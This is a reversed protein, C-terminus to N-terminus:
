RRRRRTALGTLTLLSLTATAPEPTTPSAPGKAVLKFQSYMVGGINSNYPMQTAVIGIQGDNISNESFVITPLVELSGLTLNAVDGGLIISLYYPAPFRMYDGYSGIQMIVQSFVSGEDQVASLVTEAAADNLTITLSTDSDFRIKANSFSYLSTGNSGFVFTQNGGNTSSINSTYSSNDDVLVTSNNRLTINHLEYSALSNKWASVSTNASPTYYVAYATSSILFAALTNSFIKIMIPQNRKSSFISVLPVEM